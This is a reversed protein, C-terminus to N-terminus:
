LEIQIGAQEIYDEYRSYPINLIRAISHQRLTISTTERNIYPILARYGDVAVTYFAEIISGNFCLFFRARVANSDPFNRAWDEYFQSDENDDRDSVISIRIDNLFIYRGLDDDYMWDTPNSNEILDIFTEYNM